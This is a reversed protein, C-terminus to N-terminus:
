YQPYIIGLVNMLEHDLFRHELELVLLDCTTTCQVKVVRIAQDFHKRTLLFHKSTLNVVFHVMHSHRIIYFALHDNGHNLDIVWDHTIRCFTNTAVNTFEPFNELQFSTTFDSYM